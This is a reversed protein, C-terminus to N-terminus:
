QPKETGARQKTNQKQKRTVVKLKGNCVGSKTLRVGSKTMWAAGNLESPPNHTKNVPAVMVGLGGPEYALRVAATSCLRGKVVAACCTSCEPDTPFGLKQSSPPEQGGGPPEFWVRWTPHHWSIKGVHCSRPVSTTSAVSAGSSGASLYIFTHLEM